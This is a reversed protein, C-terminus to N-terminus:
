RIQEHSEGKFTLTHEVTGNQDSTKGVDSAMCGRMLYTRSGESYTFPFKGQEDASNLLREAISQRDTPSYCKVTAEPLQRGGANTTATRTVHQKVARTLKVDVNTVEIAEGFGFEVKFVGNAGAM